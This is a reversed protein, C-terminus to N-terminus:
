IQEALEAIIREGDLELGLEVFLTVVALGDAVIGVHDMPQITMM